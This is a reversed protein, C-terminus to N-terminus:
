NEQNEEDEESDLLSSDSSHDDIPVRYGEDAWQGLDILRCRESCFPRFPNALSYVTERRCQPCIIKRQPSDSM